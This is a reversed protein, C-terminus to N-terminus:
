FGALVPRQVCKPRNPDAADETARERSEARIIANGEQSVGANQVKCRTVKECRLARRQPPGTELGNVENRPKVAWIAEGTPM